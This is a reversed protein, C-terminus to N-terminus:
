LKNFLNIWQNAIISVDYQKVQEIANMSMQRWKAENEVYFQLRKAMNDETPETIIGSVGDKIIDFVTEYTGYVCPVCGFTM